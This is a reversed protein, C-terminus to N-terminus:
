RKLIIKVIVVGGERGRGEKEEKEAEKEEGCM